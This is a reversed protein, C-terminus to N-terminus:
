APARRYPSDPDDALFRSFGSLRYPLIRRFLRSRAMPPQPFFGMRSLADNGGRGPATLLRAPAITAPIAAMRDDARIESGGTKSFVGVGARNKVVGPWGGKRTKLDRKPNRGAEAV